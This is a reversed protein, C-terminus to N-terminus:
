TQHRSVSLDRQITVSKFDNIVKFHTYLVELYDMGARDEISIDALRTGNLEEIVFQRKPQFARYCLHRILTQLYDKLCPDNPAALLKLSKGSRGSVLVLRRGHFVLHNSPLRRPLQGDWTTLGMGCPSVPDCANILFIPADPGAEPLHHSQLFDLSAPTM